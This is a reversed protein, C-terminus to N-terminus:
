GVIGSREVSEVFQKQIILFFVILPLIVLLSCVSLIAKDYPPTELRLIDPPLKSVFFGISQQVMSKGGVPVRLASAKLSLYRDTPNFMSPLYTDNWNWIFSLVAVTIIGPKATPLVIRFFTRLFGAGDVYAAEELEKPLGRFFQRFIYVFLGGSLGQGLASLVFLSAPNSLLNLKTGTIAQFIGFIDFNRFMIYQPLRLSAPPVIITLLVLGFIFGSGRFKFRAFSYGAFAACAAQLLMIATTSGLTYAFGTPYKLITFAIIINDFVPSAPIWVSTTTGIDYPHVFADSIMRLLPYLIMFGFCILLAYRFLASVTLSTYKKAKPALRVFDVSRDKGTTLDNTM